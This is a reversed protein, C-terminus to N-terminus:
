QRGGRYQKGGQGGQTTQSQSQGQGGQASNAGGQGARGPGGWLPRGNPDLLMLREGTALRTIEGARFTTGQWYGLVSVEDGPAFTVGQQQVFAQQGLQLVLQEGTVTQMTLTSLDMSVVRGELTVWADPSVQSEAQGNRNTAGGQAQGANSSGAWLPLGTESRLALALGDALIVTGAHYQEGNYFGYVTITDGISLPADAWFYSPGMEVFIQVGDKRALTIGNTEIATVTGVSSWPVGVLDLAQQQEIPGTGTGAQPMTPALPTATPVVQAAQPQAIPQGASASVAPMELVGSTDAGAPSQSADYVGVGVAGVLTTSLLGIVLKQWM